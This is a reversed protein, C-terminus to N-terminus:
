RRRYYDLFDRAPRGAWDVAGVIYGAVLGSRTVVYTTPMGYLAFSAARRPQGVLSVSQGQPDVFVSLSEIRHRRLYPAVVDRGGRDLAVAAITLDSGMAASLAALQPLEVACAPCWSAWFNVLMMKGPVHALMAQSGDLRGLRLMPMPAM